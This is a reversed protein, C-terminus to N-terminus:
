TPLFAIRVYEPPLEKYLEHVDRMTYDSINIRGLALSIKECSKEHYAVFNEKYHAYMRIQNLNNGKENKLMEFLLSIAAIRGVGADQIYPEIWEYRADQIHVNLTQGTLYCGVLSSYLSIDNSWIECGLGQLIQEVTFNGSCGVCVRSERFKDKETYVLDRIKSNISGVFM